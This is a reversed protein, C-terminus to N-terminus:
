HADLSVKGVVRVRKVLLILPLCALFFLGLATFVQAYTILAVQKM